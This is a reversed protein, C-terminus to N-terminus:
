GISEKPARARHWLIARASDVGFETLRLGRDPWDGVDLMGLLDMPRIADWFAYSLMEVTLEGRETSRWGAESLVPQIEEKVAERDGAGGLLRVLLLERVAATFDSGAALARVVREWLAAPDAAASRGRDTQRLSNRTRHVLGAEKAFEMLIMLRPVDAESRPPRYDEWGFEAALERVTAPSLYGAQTLSPRAGAIEIIRVLPRLGDAARAPAAHPRVIQERVGEILSRRLPRVLDGEAWTREREEWVAAQPTREDLWHVRRTLFRRMVEAQTRKWSRTGPTFEGAALADELAIAAAEFVTLEVTGMIAGWALDDTDPPEVGSEELAKRLASRGAGPGKAWEALVRMTVTGRCVAGGDAYGLDDLLAGLALAIARHEDHDTLFKAPLQYWLFYELDRLTVEPVDGSATLWDWAARADMAWAPDRSELVPLVREAPLDFSM